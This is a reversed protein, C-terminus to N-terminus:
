NQSAVCVNKASTHRRAELHRIAKAFSAAVKQANALKDFDPRTFLRSTEGRGAKTLLKRVAAELEDKTFTGNAVDEFNLGPRYYTVGPLSLYWPRGFALVSKGMNISEWGATGTITATLRCRRIMEHSHINGPVVKLNEINRLRKFFGDGRQYESQHKNEKVYIWWGEPLMDSLTELALLQDAYKDGLPCSSMEPQLHLPFYVFPQDLDPNKDTIEDLNKRYKRFRQFKYFAHLKKHLFFDKAADILTYNFPKYNSLYKLYMDLKQEANIPGPDEEEIVPLENFHGFDDVDFVYFFREPFMTPFICLTEIGMARALTYLLRDEGYHTITDIMVLDIENSSLLYYFYDLHQHFLDLFDHMTNMYFGDFHNRRNAMELYTARDKMVEDYLHDPCRVPSKFPFTLDKERFNKRSYTCRKETGIWVKVDCAQMEQLADIIPAFEYTYGWVLTKLM